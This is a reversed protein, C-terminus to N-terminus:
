HARFHELLLPVIDVHNCEPLWHGAGPLATFRYQGTVFAATAEAAARGLAPDADGWIYSTPVKIRGVRVSPQALELPLARYWGLAATLAGPEAIRATYAAQQESPLGRVLERWLPGRVDLLKEAIFPLQFLGMYWTKLLQSSSLAVAAIAAPHPTSLVTLTKVRDSWASGLAWAAVGGWDHGVVHAKGTGAADLIAILDLATERARYAAPNKPRAGPSYGRMDPSITRYGAQNLAAAIHTWSTSDQPFGHVLLVSEGDAPGQDRVDFTYGARSVQIM